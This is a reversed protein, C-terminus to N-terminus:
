PAVLTSVAKANATELSTGFTQQAFDLKDQLRSLQPVASNIANLRPLLGEGNASDFIQYDGL